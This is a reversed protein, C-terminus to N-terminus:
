SYPWTGAAVQALGVLGRLDRGDIMTHNETLIMLLRPAESDAM